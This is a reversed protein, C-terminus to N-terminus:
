GTVVRGTTGRVVLNTDATEEGGIDDKNQM